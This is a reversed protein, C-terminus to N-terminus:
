DVAAGEDPHGGYFFDHSTLYVAIPYAVSVALVGIRIAWREANGDLALQAAVLVLLCGAMAIANVANFRGQEGWVPDHPLLRLILHRLISGALFLVLSYGFVAPRSVFLALAIFWLFVGAGFFLDGLARGRGIPGRLDLYRVGVHAFPMAVAVWSVFLPVHQWLIPVGSKHLDVIGNVALALSVAVVVAYLEQFFRVPNEPRETM